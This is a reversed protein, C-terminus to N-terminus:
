FGGPLKIQPAIGALKELAPDYQEGALAQMNAVNPMGTAQGNGVAQPLMGSQILQLLQQMIQPDVGDLSGAPGGLPSAQMDPPTTEPALVPPAQGGGQMLQALLEPPIQQAAGDASPQPAGQVPMPSEPGSEPESGPGGQMLRQAKAISAILSEPTLGTGQANGVWGNPLKVNAPVDGRKIALKLGEIPALQRYIQEVAIRDLESAPDTIIGFKTLATENSLLGGRTAELAMRLNSATDQPMPDALRVHLDLDDGFKAVNLRLQRKVRRGAAPNSQATVVLPIENGVLPAVKNRCITVCNLMAGELASEIARWVPLIIRRGAQSLLSIAYGAVDGPSQGFLSFPVTESQWAQFLLNGLQFFDPPMSARQLPMVKDTSALYNLANPTLDIEKGGDGSMLDSYVVWANTVSSLGATAMISFWTDITKALSEVGALVPRYRKEGARYPTTRANGFAYPICGYGHAVVSGGATKVPEGDALYCRYTDDWYETWEIEQDDEIKPDLAKPYLARVDAALRKWREVVYRPGLPGDAVYVYRPDRLQLVVPLGAVTAQDDDGLQIAKDVYLTRAVVWARQSALFAAEGIINRQQKKGNMSLWGRLWGELAEADREAAMSENIAPVEITLDMQSALDVILDVVSTAYPMSVHQVGDDAAPKAREMFYLTDLRDYLANRSANREVIDDALALIKEVTPKAM